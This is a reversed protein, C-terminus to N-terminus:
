RRGGPISWLTSKVVAHGNKAAQRRRHAEEKKRYDEELAENNASVVQDLVDNGDSYDYREEDRPGDHAMTWQDIEIKDIGDDFRPLLRLNHKHENTM